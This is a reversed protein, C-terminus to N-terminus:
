NLLKAGLHEEQWSVRKAGNPTPMCGCRHLIQASFGDPPMEILSQRSISKVFYTLAERFLPPLSETTARFVSNKQM